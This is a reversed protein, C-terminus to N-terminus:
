NSKRKYWWVALYTAIPVALVIGISGCLTRVIETAIAENNFAQALSSFAGKSSIFLVLLPLAAGTYALFLTNTMSAIHTVGIRYSKRFLEKRKLSSDAGHLEEVAAIQAIVIDDLVGLSGIIIGALLLGQFNISDAGYSALFAAEESSFGSLRSFKVFIWSLLVTVALSIFISAAALHSHAKIGETVYIIAALIALSGLVTVMVPDAGGLIRPVIFEMIVLVTLALSLLSRAGKFRGIAIILVAFIFFLYLLPRSRAYDAIFYAANGAEDGTAGVVVRDGEQYINKQIVDFNKDAKIEIQRGKLEGDSALVSLDQQFASSGDPLVVSEERTIATISGNFYKIQADSSERALASQPLLISAAWLLIILKAKNRTAM